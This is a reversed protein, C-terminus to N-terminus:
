GARGLAPMTRHITRTPPASGSYLELRAAHVAGREGVRGFVLATRGGTDLMNQMGAHLPAAHMVFRGHDHTPAQKHMHAAFWGSARVWCRCASSIMRRCPNVTFPAVDGCVGRVGSDVHINFRTTYAGVFATQVRPAAGWAAIDVYRKRARITRPYRRVGGHIRRPGAVNSHRRAAAISCVTHLQRPSSGHATSVAHWSSGRWGIPARHARLQTRQRHGIPDFPLSRPM